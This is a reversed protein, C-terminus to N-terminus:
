TKTDGDRFRDGLDRQKVVVSGFGGRFRHLGVASWSAAAVELRGRCGALNQLAGTRQHKPPRIADRRERKKVIVRGFARRFRHLGM